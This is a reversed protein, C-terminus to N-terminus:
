QASVMMKEYKWARRSFRSAFPSRQHLEALDHDVGPPDLLVEAGVVHKAADVQLDM